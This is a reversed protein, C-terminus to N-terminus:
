AVFADIQEQTFEQASVSGSCLAAMVALAVPLKKNINM